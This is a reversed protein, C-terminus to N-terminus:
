RGEPLRTKAEVSAVHVAEYEARCTPCKFPTAEEKPMGLTIKPVIATIRPVSSHWGRRATLVFILGSQVAWSRPLWEVITVALGCTVAAVPLVIRLGSSM